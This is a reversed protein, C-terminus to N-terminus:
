KEHLQSMFLDYIDNQGSSEVENADVLKGWSVDLTKKVRLMLAKAFMIVFVECVRGDTQKPVRDSRSYSPSFRKYLCPVLRADPQALIKSHIRFITAFRCSFFEPDSKLNVETSILKQKPIPKAKLCRKM